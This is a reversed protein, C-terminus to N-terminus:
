FNCVFGFGVDDCRKSMQTLFVDTNSPAEPDALGYNSLLVSYVTHLHLRRIDEQEVIVEVLRVRFQRVETQTPIGPFVAHRSRIDARVAEDCRFDVRSEVARRDVDVCEAHEEKRSGGHPHRASPAVEAEFVLVPRREHVARVDARDHLRAAVRVRAVPGSGRRDETVWVGAAKEMHVDYFAPSRILRNQHWFLTPLGQPWTKKM